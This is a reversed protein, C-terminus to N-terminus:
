PALSDFRLSVESEGKSWLFPEGGAGAERYFGEPLFPEVAPTGFLLVERSSWREAVPARRALDYVLEKPAGPCSSLFPVAALASLARWALVRWAKKRSLLGPTARPPPM